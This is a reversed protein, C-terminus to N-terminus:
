KSPPPPSARKGRKWAEPGAELKPPTEFITPDYDVNIQFSFNLDASPGWGAKLPMQIGQVNTYEALVAAFADVTDEDDQDLDSTLLLAKVPLHTKRDLYYIVKYRDLAACLVDVKGGGVHGPKVKLPLPRVWRTEMLFYTQARLPFFVANESPGVRRPSEPDGERVLWNTQGNFAGASLGFRSPRDDFWGWFKNPFVYLEEHHSDMGEFGPRDWRHPARSSILLSEVQHLRQRGGKAVIAKEWLEQAARKDNESVTGCPGSTQGMSGLAFVNLVILVAAIRTTMM